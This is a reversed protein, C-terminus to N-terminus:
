KRAVVWVVFAYSRRNMRALKNFPHWRADPVPMHVLGLGGLLPMLPNGWGDAVIVESYDKHLRGLGSQTFRWFDGNATDNFDFDGAGHYPTFFCTTHIALGGPKM